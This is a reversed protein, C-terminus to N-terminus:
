VYSHTFKTFGKPQATRTDVGIKNLFSISTQSSYIFLVSTKHVCICASTPCIYLNAYRQSKLSKHYWYLKLSLINKEGEDPLM